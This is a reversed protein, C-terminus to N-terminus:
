SRSRSSLLLALLAGVGAAILVANLPKERIYVTAREQARSTSDRVATSAERARAIGIAIYEDATAGANALVAPVKEQLTELGAQVSQAASDLGAHASQAATDTARKTAAIAKDAQEAASDTLDSAMPDVRRVGAFDPNPRDM